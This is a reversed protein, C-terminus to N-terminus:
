QNAMVHSSASNILWLVHPGPIECCINLLDLHLLGTVRGSILQLLPRDAATTAKSASTSLLLSLFVYLLLLYGETLLPLTALAYDAHIGL